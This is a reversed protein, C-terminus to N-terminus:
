ELSNEDIERMFPELAYNVCEQLSLIADQRERAPKIHKNIIKFLESAKKCIEDRAAISEPTEVFYKM